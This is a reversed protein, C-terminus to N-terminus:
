KHPHPVLKLDANTAAIIADKAPSRHEEYCSVFAPRFGDYVLKGGFGLKGGFRFELGGFHSGEATAYHVWQERLSEPAGALHVVVDYLANAAATSLQESNSM